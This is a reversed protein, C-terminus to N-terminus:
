LSTTTPNSKRRFWCRSTRASWKMLPTVGCRKRRLNFFTVINNEDITVVADLAQTLTQNISEQATRQETIDRVFATYGIANGTRVKSLSFNVWIRKGDKRQMELERASGVIKDNGTTRNKNVFSDHDAQFEDPVLM